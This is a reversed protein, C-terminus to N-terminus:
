FVVLHWPTHLCSSSPVCPSPACPCALIRKNQCFESVSEMWAYVEVTSSLSLGTMETESKFRLGDIDRGLHSVNKLPCSVHVLQKDLSSDVTCTAQKFSERGAALTQMTAVNRYENWGAVGLCVFVLVIGALLRSDADTGRVARRM